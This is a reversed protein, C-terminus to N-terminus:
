PAISGTSAPRCGARGEGLTCAWRSVVLADRVVGAAVLRDGIARSGAGAPVEVFQEPGEYGRYPEGVRM